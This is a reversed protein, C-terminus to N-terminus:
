GQGGRGARSPGGVPNIAKPTVKCTPCEHLMTQGDGSLQSKAMKECDPCVMEPRSQYATIRTGSPTTEKMWVTECKPCMVGGHSVHSAHGGSEAGGNDAACGGVALLLGLVSPAVLATLFSRSMEFEKEGPIPSWFWFQHNEDCSWGTILEDSIMDALRVIGCFIYGSQVSKEIRRGWNQRM